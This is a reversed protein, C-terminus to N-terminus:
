GKRTCNGGLTRTSGPTHHKQKTSRQKGEKTQIQIIIWYEAGGTINTINVDFEELPEDLVGDIPKLEYVREKELPFVKPYDEPKM